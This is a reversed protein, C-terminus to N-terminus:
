FSGLSLKELSNYGLGCGFDLIGFVFGVGFCLFVLVRIWVFVLVRNIGVEFWVLFLFLVLSEFFFSIRRKFIYYLRYFWDNEYIFFICSM